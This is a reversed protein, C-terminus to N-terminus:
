YYYHGRADYTYGRAYGYVANGEWASSRGHHRVHRPTLAKNKQARHAVCRANQDRIYGSSAYARRKGAAQHARIHALQAPTQQYYYQGAYQPAAYQPRSPKSGSCGMKVTNSLTTKTDTPTSTTTTQRSRQPPNAQVNHHNSKFTTTTQSPFSLFPPPCPPLLFIYETSLPLSTAFYSEDHHRPYQQS